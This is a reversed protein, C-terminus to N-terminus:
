GISEGETPVVCIFELVDDGANVFQHPDNAPVYAFGGAALNFEKDESRITCKGRVIFAEHEWPHSHYPTSGGPGVTFLRMVYHPAGQAPGILIRKEVHFVTKGDHLNLPPVDASSGTIIM